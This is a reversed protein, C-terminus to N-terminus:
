RGRVATIFSSSTISSFALDNSRQDLGSRSTHWCHTLVMNNNILFFGLDTIWRALHEPMPLLVGLDPLFGRPAPTKSM